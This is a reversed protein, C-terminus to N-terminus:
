LPNGSVVAAIKEFSPEQIYEPVNEPNSSRMGAAFNPHYMTRLRRVIKGTEETTIIEKGAVTDKREIIEKCMYLQCIYDVADQLWGVTAGGLDAAFFSESQLGRTIEPRRNAPPNHDREKATIVVHCNLDIFPRLCERTKESRQRYQAEGVMGWKLMVPTESLNMIEKLVIDQYSTASDVVVTKFNGAGSKLESALRLAKESSEIRLYTVGEIRKVSQAGGTKNPEMAVLLLPKPFQCALTTKGVRNQGYILIKIFDEDLESVPIAESLVNGGMTTKKVQNSIQKNV